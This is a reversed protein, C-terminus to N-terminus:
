GDVWDTVERRVVRCDDKFMYNDIWGQVEDRTKGDWLTLDEQLSARNQEMVGWETHTEGKLEEDVRVAEQTVVSQISAIAAEVESEDPALEHAICDEHVWKGKLGVHHPKGDYDGVEVVECVEGIEFIPKGNDRVHYKFYPKERHPEMLFKAESVLYVTDGRNYKSM